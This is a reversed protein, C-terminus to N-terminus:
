KVKFFIVEWNLCTQKKIKWFLWENALLIWFSLEEPYKCFMMKWEDLLRDTVYLKERNHIKMFYNVNKDLSMLMVIGKDRKEYRSEHRDHM